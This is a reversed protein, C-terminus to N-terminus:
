APTVIRAKPFPLGSRNLVNEAMFLPDPDNAMPSSIPAANKMTDTTDPLIPMM